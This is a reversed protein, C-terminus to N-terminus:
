GPPTRDVLGTRRAAPSLWPWLHTVSWLVGRGYRWHQEEAFLALERHFAAAMAPSVGPQVAYKRLSKFFARYFGAALGLRTAAKEAPSLPAQAVMRQALTGYAWHAKVFQRYAEAGQTPDGQWAKDAHARKFLTPEPSHRVERCLLLTLLLTADVYADNGPLLQRIPPQGKLLSKRFLGLVLRTDLYAAHRYRARVGKSSAPMPRSNLPLSRGEADILQLGTYVADVQSDRGLLDALVALRDERWPDDDGAYVFFDGTTHQFALTCNASIGLNTDNRFVRLRRDQRAHRQLIDWTDDTSANDVAVLEFDGHTQGLLTDLTHALYHARNFTPLGISLTPRPSM